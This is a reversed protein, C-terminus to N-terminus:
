LNKIAELLETAQVLDFVILAAKKDSHAYKTPIICIDGTLLSVTYRQAGYQLSGIQGDTPFTKNTDTFDMLIEFFPRTTEAYLSFLLEGDSRQYFSVKPFWNTDSIPDVKALGKDLIVKTPPM